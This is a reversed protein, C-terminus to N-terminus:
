CAPGEINPANPDFTGTANTPDVADSWANCHADNNGPNGKYHWFQQEQTGGGSPASFFGPLDPLPDYKDPKAALVIPMFSGLLIVAVAIGAPIITRRM